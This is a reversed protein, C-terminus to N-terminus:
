IREELECLLASERTALEEILQSTFEAAEARTMVDPATEEEFVELVRDLAISRVPNDRRNTFTSLAGNRRLWNAINLIKPPDSAAPNGRTYASETPAQKQAPSDAEASRTVLLM